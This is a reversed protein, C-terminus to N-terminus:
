FLALLKGIVQNSLVYESNRCIELTEEYNNTIIGDVNLQKMRYVDAPRNVTWVYVKKHNHYLKHVLNINITHYNVCYFDSQEPLSTIVFPVILGINAAPQQKKVQKVIALDASHMWFRPRRVGFGYQQGFRNVITTPAVHKQVKLEVLLPVRDQQATKLYTRFPTLKAHYGGYYGTTNALQKLTKQRILGRHGTMKQLNADHFTIFRNDKTLQVDTEVRDPHLRATKQLSQLTNPVGNNGNVGRHSIVIPHNITTPQQQIIFITGLAAILALTLVKIMVGVRWSTEDDDPLQWFWKIVVAYWYSLLLTVMLLWWCAAVIDWFYHQVFFGSAIGLASVAIMVLARDGNWPLHEISGGVRALIFYRGKRLWWWGLLLWIIVLVPVIRWRYLYLVRLFGDPVSLLGTLSVTAGFAGLPLLLLWNVITGVILWAWERGESVGRRSAILWTLLVVLVVSVALQGGPHGVLLDSAILQVMIGVWCYSFLPWEVM